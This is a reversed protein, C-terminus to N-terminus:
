HLWATSVTSGHGIPTNPATTSGPYELPKKFTAFVPVRTADLPLGTPNTESQKGQNGKFGGFFSPSGRGLQDFWFVTGLEQSCFRPQETLVKKKRIGGEAAAERTRSPLVSILNLLRSPATFCLRHRALSAHGM